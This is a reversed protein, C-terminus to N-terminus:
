QAKKQAGKSVDPAETAKPAVAPPTRKRKKRVVPAEPGKSPQPKVEPAETAKTPAQQQAFTPAVVAVVLLGASFVAVFKKV